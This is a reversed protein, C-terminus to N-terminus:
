KATLSLKKVPNHCSNFIVYCCLVPGNGWGEMIILVQGVKNHKSIKVHLNQGVSGALSCSQSFM